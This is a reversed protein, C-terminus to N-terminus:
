IVKILRHAINTCLIVVTLSVEMCEYIFATFFTVLYKLEKYNVSIRDFLLILVLVSNPENCLLTLSELVVLVSKSRLDSAGMKLDNRILLLM